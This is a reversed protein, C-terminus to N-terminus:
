GAGGYRGLYAEQVNRDRRVDDMTGEAIVHGEAMVIVRQCLESVFQLNHEILCITQRRETNLLRIRDALRNLLTPNVGAAPEDLLLVKPDAMVARGLELLKKQGGSLTQALDHQVTDLNLFRLMDGARKRIAQEERACVRPNLWVHRLREGSQRTPAVMLNELTTLRGFEQPIQFTRVLGRHPLRHAPLSTTEKGDLWIRGSDPRLAGAITNFLTTKGAGNPGIL